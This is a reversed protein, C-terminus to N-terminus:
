ESSKSVPKPASGVKEFGLSWKALGAEVESASANTSDVGADNLCAMVEGSGPGECLVMKGSMRITVGEKGYNAKWSM